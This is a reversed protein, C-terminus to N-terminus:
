HVKHWSKVIKGFVVPVFGHGTFSAPQHDTPYAMVAPARFMNLITESHEGNQAAEEIVESELERLLAWTLVGASRHRLVVERVIERVAENADRFDHMTKGMM